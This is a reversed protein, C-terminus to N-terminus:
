RHPNKWFLAMFLPVLVVYVSTLFGGNAASTSELGAQQLASGAFLLGGAPLIWLLTKTPKGIRKLIFPLMVLGALLFRIGNFGFFGL